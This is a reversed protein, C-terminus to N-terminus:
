DSSFQGCSENMEDPERIQNEVKLKNQNETRNKDNTIRQSVKESESQREDKAITEKNNDSRVIATSKRGILRNYGRKIFRETM